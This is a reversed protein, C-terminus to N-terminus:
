AAESNAPEQQGTWRLTSDLEESALLKQIHAIRKYRAGEFDDVTM